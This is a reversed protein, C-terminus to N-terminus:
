FCCCNASKYNALPTNCDINYQDTCGLTTSGLGGVLPPNLGIGNGCENACTKQMAACIVNCSSMTTSATTCNGVQACEGEYCKIAGGCSIGIGGCNNPDNMTNYCAGAIAQWEMSGMSCTLTITAMMEASKGAMDFFKATFTRQGNTGYAFDISHAQQMQAWSVTLDFSGMMGSAQFAGYTAGYQDTLAGGVLDGIGNPDTLVATFTVSQGVTISTVNTGFDLFVPPGGSGGSSSATTTTSSSESAGGTGTGSVGGTSSTHGSSSSAAGGSGTAAVCEGAKCSLGANCTDNPYCAAGEDGAAGGKSCAGVAAALAVVSLVFACAVGPSRVDPSTQSM